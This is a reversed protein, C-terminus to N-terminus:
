IIYKKYLLENIEFDIKDDIDISSFKPMVHYVTKSNIIKKYKFFVREIGFMFQLM